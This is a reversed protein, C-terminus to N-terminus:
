RIRESVHIIKVRDHRELEPNVYEKKEHESIYRPKILQFSGEKLGFTKKIGKDLQKSFLIKDGISEIVLPRVTSNNEVCLVRDGKKLNM